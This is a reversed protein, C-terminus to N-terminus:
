PPTGGGGSFEFYADYTECYAPQDYRVKWGKTRYIDEFNLWVAKISGNGSARLKDYLDKLYITATGKNMNEAILENVADLVFGPIPEPKKEVIESPAVAVGKKM